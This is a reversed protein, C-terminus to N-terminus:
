KAVIKASGLEPKVGGAPPTEMEILFYSLGPKRGSLTLQALAGSGTRVGAITVIGADNDYTVQAGSGNAATGSKVLVINRNFRIRFTANTGAPLGTAQVDVTVEGDSPIEYISNSFGIKPPTASPAAGAAPATGLTPKPPTAIVPSLTAPKAGSKGDMDLRIVAGGPAGSSLFKFENESSVRSGTGSYFETDAPSPIDWGKVIRPTLTLLIDTRTGQGDRVQFLKGIIPIEGLGPVRKVTAREEDRILGGMIATENDNLVMNTSVNRTGISFASEEATGLNQGLSSVELNLAVDVTNDLLVKPTVELKIGIDRYEFSTRTQGNPDLVTAARLPVRDGIHITAPKQSVTRIRPSALTRADVDQKFFKISAAPLTVVSSALESEASGDRIQSLTLKPPSVTIQSGYDVGLNESKTRNVELIEVEMSVEALRRDNARILRDALALKERTARLTISNNDTNASVNSVDLVREVLGRIQEAPATELFFTRVHYDSNAARAEPSDKFILVANDGMPRFHTGSAKLMLRFAQDFSVREAYLSLRQDDLGADFIINLGYNKGLALFADKMDADRFNVTAPASSKLRIPKPATHIPNSGYARNLLQLAERNNPDVQLAEELQSIARETRGLKLSSRGQAMLAQSRRRDKIDELAARLLQSEPVVLLGKSFLGEASGLDGEALVARGSKLYHDEAGQIASLLATRHESQDPYAYAKERALSVTVPWHSGDKGTAVLSPPRTRDEM